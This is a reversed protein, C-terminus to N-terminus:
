FVNNFEWLIMQKALAEGKINVVFGLFLQRLHGTFLLLEKTKIKFLM